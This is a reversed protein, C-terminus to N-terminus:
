ISTQAGLMLVALLLASPLTGSLTVTVASSEEARASHQLMGYGKSLKRQQGAGALSYVTIGYVSPADAYKHLPRAQTDGAPFQYIIGTKAETWYMTDEGDFAISVPDWGDPSAQGASQVFGVDPNRDAVSSTTKEQGYIGQTSLYFINQGAVAMGRVENVQRSLVNIEPHGTEDQKKRSGSCVSGYKIGKEQNGWFVNFSDVAIGSPMWVNSEPYGGTAKSYVEVPNMADGIAIKSEDMRYVARYSSAPAEVLTQGTFYLDGLGNVAMWKATVNDVAVHQHGDTKLLGDDEIVLQYWFIKKLDPDSVYLRSNLPDAAVGMPNSVTGLFLPRWITDPLHTYAVTKIEPFVIHSVEEIRLCQSYWQQFPHWKSGCKVAIPVIRNSLNCYM